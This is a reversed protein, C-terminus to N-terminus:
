RRQRCSPPQLGFTEWVETNKVNVPNLQQLECFEQMEESQTKQILRFSDIDM